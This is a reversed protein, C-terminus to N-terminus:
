EKPPPPPGSLGLFHWYLSADGIKYWAVKVPVKEGPHDWRESPCSATVWKQAPVAPHGDKGIRLAKRLCPLLGSTFAAFISGPNHYVTPDLSTPLPWTKQEPCAFLWRDALEDRQSIIMLNAFREDRDVVTIDSDLGHPYFDAHTPANEPVPPPPDAEELQCHAFAWAIAKPTAVEIVGSRAMSPASIPVSGCGCSCLLLLGLWRM